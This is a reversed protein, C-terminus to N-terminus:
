SIIRKRIRSLSEPRIGLYRSIKNVPLQAIVEPHEALLTLYQAESSQTLLQKERKVKRLYLRETEIRGLQNAILSHHYAKKLDEFRIAEVICETVAVIQVDSPTHTLLSSYSCFFSHAFFFDLIKIESESNINVEVIGQRLFYISAEIQEFDTIIQHKTYRKSTHRFPIKGRFDPDIFTTIYERLNM